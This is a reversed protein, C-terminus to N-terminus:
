LEIHGGMVVTRDGPLAFYEVANASNRSLTVFLRKRWKRMGPADTPVITMRSLFYSCEGPDIDLEADRGVALRLVGPVDPEDQFGFRATIHSIGDDKYGLDDLSLRESEPVHPVKQMEISLVVTHEHLTHNHEINARMALPTTEIGAHLFVAAGPVRFVPPDMDRIENVFARLPGEEETRNATVIKRGRQWTILVVFVILAISLPFWGGHVVKRLNASFFALDVVLFSIAGAIVVWLP